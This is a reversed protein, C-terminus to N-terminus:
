LTFFFVLSFTLQEKISIRLLKAFAMAIFAGRRWHFLFFTPVVVFIYSPVPINKLFSNSFPCSHAHEVEKLGFRYM